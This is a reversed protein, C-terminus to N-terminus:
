FRIKVILLLLLLANICYNVRVRLGRAFFFLVRIYWLRVPDVNQQFELKSLHKTNARPRRLSCTTWLDVGSARRCKGRACASQVQCKCSTQCTEINVMRKRRQKDSCDRHAVGRTWTSWGGIEGDRRVVRETNQMFHTDTPCRERRCM